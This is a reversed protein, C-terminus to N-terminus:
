TQLGLKHLLTLTGPWLDVSMALVKEKTFWSFAHAEGAPTANDAGSVELAFSLAVAHKRPDIGFAPDSPHPFWQMVYQPQPDEPLILTAGPLTEDLHRKVADRVTETREIRGGIHCWVVRDEGPYDRSILGVEQKGKSDVRVPVLDVCAIPVSRQVFKWVVRNLRRTKVREVKVPLFKL